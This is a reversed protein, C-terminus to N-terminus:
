GENTGDPDKEIRNDEVFYSYNGKKSGLFDKINYYHYNHYGRLIDIYHEQLDGSKCENLLEICDTILTNLLDVLERINKPVCGDHKVKLNKITDIFFNYHNIKSQLESNM